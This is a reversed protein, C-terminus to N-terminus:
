SLFEKAINLRDPSLFASYCPLSLLSTCYCVSQSVGKAAPNLPLANETTIAPYRLIEDLM